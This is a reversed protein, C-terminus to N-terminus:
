KITNNIIWDPRFKIKIKKISFEAGTDDASLCMKDANGKKDIYVDRFKFRINNTVSLDEIAIEFDRLMSEIMDIIGKVPFKNLIGFNIMSIIKAEYFMCVALNLSRANDRDGDQIKSYKNVLSTLIAYLNEEKFNEESKKGYKILSKIAGCCDKRISKGIVRVIPNDPDSYEGYKAINPLVEHFVWYQLRKAEPKISTFTLRFLGPLNIIKMNRRQKIGKSSIDTIGIDAKEDDKLRGIADMHNKIELINCIDKGVFWPDEDGERMVVRVDNEKLFSFLKVIESM